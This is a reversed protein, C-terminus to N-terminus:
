ASRSEPVGAILSQRLQAVTAARDFRGEALTRARGSRAAVDHPRTLMMAMTESLAAPDESPAAFGVQGEAVLRNAEGDSSVVVPRGAGLAEVLKTPLAVEALRGRRLLVLVADAAALVLPVESAPRPREFSIATLGRRAASGELGKREAGDGIIRISYPPLGDTQSLREAADLLTGLGQALGVTGTYVFTFPDSPWGLAARARQTDHSPDFRRLDVGNPVVRVKGPSGVQAAIIRACGETPTTIGSAGAYARRELWRAMRIPVSGRLAGVEIPYDPWPDAVHFVYPRRAVASLWRATLGLFLPPSEVLLVDAWRVERVAAAAAIAFSAQDVIRNLFRTNPRALVPLRLVRIGDMTERRITLANYTPWVVGDPYHPHNTIVRVEDGLRMLELATERLRTQPAGVEPAWYHTLIAIRV